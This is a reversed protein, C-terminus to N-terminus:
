PQWRISLNWKALVRLVGWRGLVKVTLEPGRIAVQYYTFKASVLYLSRSWRTRRSSQRPVRHFREYHHSQTQPQERRESSPRSSVTRGRLNHVPKELMPPPSRLWYLRHRRKTYGENCSRAKPPPFSYDKASYPFQLPPSEVSGLLLAPHERITELATSM